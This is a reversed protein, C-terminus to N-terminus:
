NTPLLVNRTLRNYSKYWSGVNQMKSVFERYCFDKLYLYEFGLDKKRKSDTSLVYVTFQLFRGPLICEGIYLISSADYDYTTDKFSYYLRYEEREKTENNLALGQPKGSFLNLHLSHLVCVISDTNNTIKIDYFSRGKLNRSSKSVDVLLGSEKNQSFLSYCNCILFVLIITKIMMYYNDNRMKQHKKTVMNTM